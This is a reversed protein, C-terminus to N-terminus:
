PSLTSSTGQDDVPVQHGRVLVITPGSPRDKGPELSKPAATAAAVPGAGVLIVAAGAL